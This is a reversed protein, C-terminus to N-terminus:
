RTALATWGIGAAFAQPANSPMGLIMGVLTGLLVFIIPEVFVKNRRSLYTELIDSLGYVRRSKKTARAYSILTGVLTILILGWPLAYLKFM